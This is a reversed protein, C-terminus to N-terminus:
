RSYVVKDDITVVELQWRRDSTFDAVNWLITVKHLRGESDLGRGVLFVEGRDNNALTDDSLKVIGYKRLEPAAVAKAQATIEKMNKVTRDANLYGSVFPIGLLGACLLAPILVLASMVGFTVGFSRTFSSGGFEPQMVPPANQVVVIPQQPAPMTMPPPDPVEPPLLEGVVALSRPMKVAKGCYACTVVSGARQEDYGVLGKCHPCRLPRM